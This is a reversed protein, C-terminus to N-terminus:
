PISGKPTGHGASVHHISDSWMRHGRSAAWTALPLAPTDTPPHALRPRCLSVGFTPPIYLNWWFQHSNDCAFFGLYPAGM